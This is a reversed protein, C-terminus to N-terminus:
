RQKEKIRPQVNEFEYGAGGYEFDPHPANFYDELQKDMNKFNRGVRVCEEPSADPHSRQYDQAIDLISKHAFSPEYKFKSAM